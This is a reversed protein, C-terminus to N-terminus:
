RADSVKLVSKASVSTSVRRVFKVRKGNNKGLLAGEEQFAAVNEVKAQAQFWSTIGNKLRRMPSTAPSSTGIIPPTFILPSIPSVLVAREDGAGVVVRRRPLRLASPRRGTLCFM